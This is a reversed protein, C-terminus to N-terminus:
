DFTFNWVTDAPIVGPLAALYPEGDSGSPLQYVTRECGLHKGVSAAIREEEGPFATVLEKIVCTDGDKMAACIGSACAYLGGGFVKCFQKEWELTINSPHLHKKGRLMNERWLMYETSSLEMCMELAECKAEFSKRYLVTEFGMIDKYWDYLGAEAPLTCVISSERKRALKEAALCLEKGIGRGRHEPAVAVAYIYGCIPADKGSDILEMGNIVNAMGIVKKDEVAVVASGMDPLMLYFIETLEEPDHFTEHWLRRMAPVDFIKYERIECASM